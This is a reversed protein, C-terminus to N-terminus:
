GGGTSFLKCRSSVGGDIHVPGAGFIEIDVGLAEAMVAIVGHDV